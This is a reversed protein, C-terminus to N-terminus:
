RNDDKESLKFTFLVISFEMVPVPNGTLLHEISLIKSVVVRERIVFPWKISTQNYHNSAALTLFYIIRQFLACRM